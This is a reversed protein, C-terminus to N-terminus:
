YTAITWLSMAAAEWENRCKNHRLLIYEGNGHGNDKDVSYGTGVSGVMGWCIIGTCTKQTCFGGGGGSPWVSLKLLSKVSCFLFLINTFCHFQM